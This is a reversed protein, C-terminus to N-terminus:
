QQFKEFFEFIQFFFLNLFKKVLCFLRKNSVFKLEWELAPPLLAKDQKNNVLFTLIIGTSLRYNASEDIFNLILCNKIIRYLM